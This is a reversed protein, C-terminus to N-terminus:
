LSVWCPVTVAWLGAGLAIGPQSELWSERTQWAHPETVSPRPSLTARHVTGVWGEMGLETGDSSVGHGPRTAERGVGALHWGPGSHLLDGELGEARRGFADM